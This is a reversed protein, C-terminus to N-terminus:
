IYKEGNGRKIMISPWAILYIYVAIFIIWGIVPIIICLIWFYPNNYIEEGPVELKAAVKVITQIKFVYFMIFVPFILCLTGFVWYQWKSYWEKKDYLKLMSAMVFSFLGFTFADIVLYIFWNKRKLLSM